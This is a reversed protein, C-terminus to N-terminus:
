CNVGLNLSIDGDVDLRDRSFRQFEGAIEFVELLMIDRGGNSALKGFGVEDIEQISGVGIVQNAVQGDGTLGVLDVM